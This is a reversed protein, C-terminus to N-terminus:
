ASGKSWYNDRAALIPEFAALLQRAQQRPEQWEPMRMNALSEAAVTTSQRARAPVGVMVRRLLGLLSKQEPTMLNLPDDLLANHDTLFYHLEYAVNFNGHDECCDEATMALSRIHGIFWDLNLFFLEVADPTSDPQM